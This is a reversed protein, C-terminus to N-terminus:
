TKAWPSTLDVNFVVTIHVSVYRFSEHEFESEVDVNAPNLVDLAEAGHLSKAVPGQGFDDPTLRLVAGENVRPDETVSDHLPRGLEPHALGVEELLAAGSLLVVDGPHDVSAALNLHRVLGVYYRYKQTPDM